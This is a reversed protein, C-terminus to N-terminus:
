SEADSFELWRGAFGSTARAGRPPPGSCATLRLLPYDEAEVVYAEKRHRFGRGLHFTSVLEPMWTHAADQVISGHDLGPYLVKFLNRRNHDGRSLDGYPRRVGVWDESGLVHLYPLQRKPRMTWDVPEHYRSWLLHPTGLTVVSGVRRGLPHSEVASRAVLGGADHGIVCVDDWDLLMLLAAVGQAAGEVEHAPTQILLAARRAQERQLGLVMGRVSPQVIELLDVTKLLAGRAMAGWWAWCDYGFVGDFHGFRVLAQALPRLSDVTAM